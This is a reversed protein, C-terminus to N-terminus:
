YEIKYLYANEKFIETKSNFISSTNTNDIDGIEHVLKLKQPYKLAIPYMIRHLTNIVNGDVVLPNRRLSGILIHTVGDRKYKALTSDAITDKPTVTFVGYFKMGKSYIFSMSPKRSAVLSGKPLNKGCWESMRLFNEWDPTYGYYINGELNHKLININEPIKNITKYFCPIILFIVFYIFISQIPSSGKSLIHYIGYLITILIFPVLIMIIRPQDWRTQLAVFTTGSMIIAYLSTFLIYKNKNRFAMFFGFIMLLLILITIGTSTTISDNDLFGLIQMLRKSLFLNANNLLRSIYGIFDEKGLAPNYPDKLLLMQGQSSYQLVSGWIITKLLYFISWFIGISIISILANIYQKRFIFFVILVIILVISINKTLLVITAVLGTLLWSKWTKKILNENKEIIDIARFFVYFFLAQLFLFFAENYTQSAFYLFHYATSVILLM